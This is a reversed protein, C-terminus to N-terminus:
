KTVEKLAEIAVEIHVSDPEKTTINQFIMGPISIFKTLKNDFKGVFEFVEYSICFVIPISILRVLLRYFTSKWPLLCFIFVSVIMIISLFNTGCRKHNKPLSKINDITLEMNNEYCNITKHEAGHYKYIEQIDKNKSILFMYLYLIIIRFIGEIINLIFISKTYDSFIDYIITPILIFVLFCLISSIFISLYIFAKDSNEKFVRKFIKDIFDEDDEIRDLSKNFTKMGSIINESIIFIGRIFPIKYINKNNIFSGVTSKKVIIKGNENRTAVVKKNNYIMAVGNTIAQGGVKNM